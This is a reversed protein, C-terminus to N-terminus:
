NGVCERERIMVGSPSFWSTRTCPHWTAHQKREQSFDEKKRKLMVRKFIGFTERSPYCTALNKAKISVRLLEQWEEKHDLNLSGVSHVFPM